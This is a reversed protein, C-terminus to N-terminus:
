NVFVMIGAAFLVVLIVVRLAQRPVLSVYRAGITAGVIVGPVLGALALWDINGQGLHAVSALLLSLAAVASTTGVAQPSPLKLIMLFAIVIISGSISTAGMLPGFVCGLVFAAYIKWRPVALARPAPRVIVYRYFLLVVSLVIVGGIISTLPVVENIEAAYRATLYATPVAPISFLLAVPLIVHGQRYHQFTGSAMLVLGGAAMTGVALVPPMDFLVILGSTGLLATGIATFGVVVGVVLGLLGAGLVFPVYELFM